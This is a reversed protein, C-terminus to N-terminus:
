SVSILPNSPTITLTMSPTYAATQSPGPTETVVALDPNSEGPAPNTSGDLAPGKPLNCASILVLLLIFAAIGRLKMKTGGRGKLVILEMM